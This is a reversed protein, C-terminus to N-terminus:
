TSTSPSHISESSYDATVGPHREPGSRGRRAAAAGQVRLHDLPGSDRPREVVLPAGRDIFGLRKSGWMVLARRPPFTRFVVKVTPALTGADAGAGVVAAPVPEAGGGPAPEAAGPTVVSPVGADASVHAVTLAATSLSAPPKSRANAWWLGAILLVLAAGGALLWVKRESALALWRALPAPENM